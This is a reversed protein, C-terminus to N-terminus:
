GVDRPYVGSPRIRMRDGQQHKRKQQQKVVGHMQMFAKCTNNAQTMWIGGHIFLCPTKKTLVGEEVFSTNLGHQVGRCNWQRPLTEAQVSRMTDSHLLTRYAQQEDFRPPLGPRSELHRDLLQESCSFFRDVQASRRYVLFGGNVSSALWTPDPMYYNSEVGFLMDVATDRLATELAALAGQGRARAFPNAWVDTDIMATYEFPSTRALQLKRKMLEVWCARNPSGTPAMQDPKACGLPGSQVIHTRVKSGFAAQLCTLSTQAQAMNYKGRVFLLFGLASSAPRTAHMAGALRRDEDITCEWTPPKGCACCNHEPYGFQVGSTWEAGLRFGGASCWQAAYHACGKGSGNDYGTTDTCRPTPATAGSPQRQRMALAARRLRRRPAVRKCVRRASQM